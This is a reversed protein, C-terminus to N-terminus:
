RYRREAESIPVDNASMDRRRMLGEEDFEWHENGHTRFWQGAADHWEYEFRVSIRNGTFCWLEKMLRYDLEKAWKRRLFDKIAERGRFFETRNRWESDVTYALAVREPDRSNWADEAAQVKARATEANFPPRLPPPM